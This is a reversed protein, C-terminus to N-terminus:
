SHICHAQVSQTMINLGIMDESSAVSITQPTDLGKKVLGLLDYLVLSKGVESIRTSRCPDLLIDEDCDEHSCGTM